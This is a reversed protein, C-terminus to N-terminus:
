FITHVSIQQYGHSGSIDYFDAFGEEKVSDYENELDFSTWHIATSPNETSSRCRSYDSGLRLGRYEWGHMAKAPLALAVAAAFTFFTLWRSFRTKIM